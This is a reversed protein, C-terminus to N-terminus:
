THMVHSGNLNADSCSPQHDGTQRRSGAQEARPTRSEDSPFNDRTHTHTDAPSTHTHRKTPNRAKRSTEFTLSHTDNHKHKLSVIAHVDRVHFKRLRGQDAHLVRSERDKVGSRSASISINVCVVVTIPRTYELRRIM